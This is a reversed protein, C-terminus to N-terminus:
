NTALEGREASAVLAANLMVQAQIHRENLSADAGRFEIRDTYGFNMSAYHDNGLARAGRNFYYLNTQITERTLPQAWQSNRKHKRSPYTHVRCIYEKIAAYIKFLDAHSTHNAPSRRNVTGM